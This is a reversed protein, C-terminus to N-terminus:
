LVSKSLIYMKRFEYSVVLSALMVGSQLFITILFFRCIMSYSVHFYPSCRNNSFHFYIGQFSAQRREEEEMKRNDREMEVSCQDARQSITFSLKETISNWHSSFGM